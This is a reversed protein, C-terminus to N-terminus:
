PNTQYYNHALMCDAAALTVNLENGLPRVDGHHLITAEVNCNHVQLRTEADSGGGAKVWTRGCGISEYCLTGDSESPAAHARLGAMIARDNALPDSYCGTTAVCLALAAARLVPRADM